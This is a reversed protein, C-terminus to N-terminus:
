FVLAEAVADRVRAESPLPLGREDAVRRLSTMTVDHLGCVTFRDFVGMDPDINLAFGHSTVGHRIRMGISAIKHHEPTWVGVLSSAGPPTDRRVAPFGLSGLAAILGNEVWRVIDVPGRERVDVVLYGVLQGPGHYTAYGGRDVEVTRIGLDAPLDAPSTRPGYTIVPPHSLLFLRDGALGEGREKVWRAMSANAEDYGVEGLDVRELVIVGM